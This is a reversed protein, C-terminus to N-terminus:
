HHCPPSSSSPPGQLFSYNDTMHIYFASTPATRPTNPRSSRRRPSLSIRNMTRGAIFVEFVRSFVFIRPNHPCEQKRQKRASASACPLRRRHRFSPNTATSELRGIPRPTHLRRRDKTHATRRCVTCVAPFASQGRHRICAALAAERRLFQRNPTQLLLSPLQEGGKHMEKDIRAAV